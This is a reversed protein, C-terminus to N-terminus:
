PRVSEIVQRGGCLRRDAADLLASGSAIANRFTLRPPFDDLKCQMRTDNIQSARTLEFASPHHASAFRWQRSDIMAAYLDYRPAYYSACVTGSAYAFALM